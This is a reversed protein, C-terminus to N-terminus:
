IEGGAVKINRDFASSAAARCVGEIEAGSYNETMVQNADPSDTKIWKPLTELCRPERPTNCLNEDRKAATECELTCPNPNVALQILDVDSALHGGETMGHTHIRVIQLRGEYSPLGIEVQVELRGPRPTPHLTYPKPTLFRFSNRRFGGSNWAGYLVRELFFGSSTHISCDHMM